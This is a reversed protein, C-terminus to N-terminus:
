DFQFEPPLSYEYVGGTFPQEPNHEMTVYLSKDQVLIARPKLPDPCQLVEIPSADGPHFAWVKRQKDDAVYIVGGETVFLGHVDAGPGGPLRGVVVPELSEAPNVCLIRSKSEDTFYIVEEKTVFIRWGGSFQLDEPLSESDIVTQLTSGVLKQVVQGPRWDGPVLMYVVGSPSCVIEDADLDDLVVHGHGDQFGLLRRNDFDMVFLEGSPSISLCCDNGFDNTGSTRLVRDEEDERTAPEGPKWSLIRRRKEDFAYIAGQHWCLNCSEVKSVQQASVISAGLDPSRHKFCRRKPQTEEFLEQIAAKIQSFIHRDVVTVMFGM